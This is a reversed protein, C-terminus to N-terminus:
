PYSIFRGLSGFSWPAWVSETRSASTTTPSLSGPSPFSLHVFSKWVESGSGVQLISLSAAPHAQSPGPHGSAGQLYSGELGDM